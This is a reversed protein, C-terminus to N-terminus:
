GIVNRGETDTTCDQIIIQIKNETNLFLYFTKRTNMLNKFCSFILRVALLLDSTLIYTKM